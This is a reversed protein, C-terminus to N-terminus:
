QSIETIFNHCIEKLYIAYERDQSDQKYSLELNVFKAVLECATRTEYNIYKPIPHHCVILGWVKQDKILTVTMSAGVNMNKLYQVHCPSVTRLLSFDLDLPRGTLPNCDPILEVPQYHIDPIFRILNMSLQNRAQPPIDTAPYHMGLLPALNEVKDEAVVEGDGTADFQYVIARDFGIMRRVEEVATQCLAQLNPTNHIKDIPEQVLHYSNFCNSAPQAVVQELEVILVSSSKHLTGQFFYNGEQSKFSLTIRNYQGDKEFLAKEIAEIEETEVFEHLFNGVLEKPYIGIAEFTNNSVQLIKLVPSELVLLIGHPQISAPSYIPECDSDDLAGTDSTLLM